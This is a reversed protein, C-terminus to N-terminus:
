LSLFFSYRQRRILRPRVMASEPSPYLVRAFIKFVSALMLALVDEAGIKSMVIGVLCKPFTPEWLHDMAQRDCRCLEFFYILSELGYPELFMRETAHWPAGFRRLIKMVDASAGSEEKDNRLIPPREATRVVVGKLLGSAHRKPSFKIQERWNAAMVMDREFHALGIALSQRCQKGTATTRSHM